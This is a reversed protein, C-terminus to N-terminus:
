YELRRGVSRPLKKPPTAECNTNNASINKL